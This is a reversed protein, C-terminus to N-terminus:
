STFQEQYCEGKKLLAYSVELIKRSTAVVAQIFHKGEKRKKQYYNSFTNNFRTNVFAAYYLSCRLHPSGRKTLKGSRNISTGSESLKPDYGAFAVIKRKSSFRKVDGIESIIARALQASIGPISELIKTEKTEQKLIEKELKEIEKDYKKILSKISKELEKVVVIGKELSSLQLKLSTRMQILKRRVRSVKQVKNSLGELTLLHGEGQKLLLSIIKSDTKDTKKKRITARIMQKTLIPNLEKVIFEKELFFKALHHHYNSTSEVGIVDDEKLKRLIKRFGVLNNKVNLYEKDPIFVALTDKAVDIGICRM